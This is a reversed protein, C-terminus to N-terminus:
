HNLSQSQGYVKLKFQYCDIDNEREDQISYSYSNWVVEQLNRLVNSPFGIFRIKDISSLSICAYRANAPNCRTM